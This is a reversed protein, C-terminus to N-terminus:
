AKWLHMFSGTTSPLMERFDQGRDFTETRLYHFVAVHDLEDRYRSVAAADNPFNFRMPLAWTSTGMEAIALALAVQGSFHPDPLREAVKPRLYLHKGAFTPFISSPFFVAL